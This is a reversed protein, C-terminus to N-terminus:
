GESQRRYFHLANDHWIARQAGPSLAAIATAVCRKWRSYGGALKVVPWDGGFMCRSPGFASVALQIWPILEEDQWHQWDAETPLGSIKCMLQPFDALRAFERLWQNRDGGVIDPKGLHDLVVRAQPVRTFLDTLLDVAAPIQHVRICLDLTLGARAVDAMGERYLPDYFLLTPENQLSHRVGVVRPIDLLEPLQVTRSGVDDLPLFAVIGIITFPSQQALSDIWRVEAIAEDRACDAQVVVAAHLDADDAFRQTPLQQENIPPVEKLWDYHLTSPDWLHLHSDTLIM